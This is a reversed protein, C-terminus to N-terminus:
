TEPRGALRDFPGGQPNLFGAAIQTAENPWADPTCDPCDTRFADADTMTVVTGCKTLVRSGSVYAILHTM